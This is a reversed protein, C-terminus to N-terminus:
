GIEYEILRTNPNFKRGFVEVSVVSKTGEELPIILDGIIPYTSTNKIISRISEEIISQYSIADQINSFQKELSTILNVKINFNMDM